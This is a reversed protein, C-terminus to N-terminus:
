RRYASLRLGAPALARAARSGASARRYRLRAPGPRFGHRRRAARQQALRAQEFRLAFFTAVRLPFAGVLARGQPLHVGFYLGPAGGAPSSHSLSRLLIQAIRALAQDCCFRSSTARRSASCAAASACCDVLQLLGRSHDGGARSVACCCAACATASSAPNSSRLRPASAAKARMSRM